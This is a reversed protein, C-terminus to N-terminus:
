DRRLRGLISRRERTAAKEREVRETAVRRLVSIRVQRIADNDPELRLAQEIARRADDLEGAAISMVAAWGSAEAQSPRRSRGELALGGVNEVRNTDLATCARAFLDAQTIMSSPSASM